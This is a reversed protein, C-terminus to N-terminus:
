SANHGLCSLFCQVPHFSPPNPSLLTDTLLKALPLLFIILEPFVLSAYSLFHLWMLFIPEATFIIWRTVRRGHHNHCLWRSKGKSPPPPITPSPLQGRTLPASMQFLGVWSSLEMVLESKCFDPLFKCVCSFFYFLPRQFSIPLSCILHDKIQHPSWTDKFPPECVPSCFWHPGQPAESSLRPVWTTRAGDNVATDGWVHGEWSKSGEHGMELVYIFSPIETYIQFNGTPYIKFTRM